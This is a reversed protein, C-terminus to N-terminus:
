NIVNRYYTLSYIVVVPNPCVGADNDRDPFFELSIGYRWTHSPLFEELLMMRQSLPVVPVLDIYSM